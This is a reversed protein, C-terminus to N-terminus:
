PLTLAIVAITGSFFGTVAGGPCACVYTRSSLVEPNFTSGVRSMSPLREGTGHPNLSKDEGRLSHGLM